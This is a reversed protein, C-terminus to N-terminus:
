VRDMDELVFVAFRNYANYVQVDPNNDLQTLVWTGVESPDVQRKSVGNSNGCKMEIIYTWPIVVGYGMRFEPRYNVGGM